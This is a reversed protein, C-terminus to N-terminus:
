SGANSGGNIVRDFLAHVMDEPRIANGKEATVDQANAEDERAKLYVDLMDAPEKNCISIVEFDGNDRKATAIVLYGNLHTDDDTQLLYDLM